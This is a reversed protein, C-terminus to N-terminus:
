FSRSAGFITKEYYETLVVKENPIMVLRGNTHNDEDLCYLFYNGKNISLLIGETKYEDDLSKSYDSIKNETYIICHMGSDQNFNSYQKDTEISNSFNSYFMLLSIFAWIVILSVYIIYKIGKRTKKNEAKKCMPYFMFIYFLFLVIIKDDNRQPILMFGFHMHEYLFYVFRMVLFYFIVQYLDYLVKIAYDYLKNKMNDNKICSEFRTRLNYKNIIVKLKITINKRVHDAMIKIVFLSIPFFMITILAALGSILLSSSGFIDGVSANINLYNLMICYKVYGLFYVIGTCLFVLQGIYYFIDKGIKLSNYNINNSKM